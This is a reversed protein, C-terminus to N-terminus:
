RATAAIQDWGSLSPSLLNAVGHTVQLKGNRDIHAVMGYGNNYPPPFYFFLDDKTSVIRTTGASFTTQDTVRFQYGIRDVYGISTGGTNPNHLVLYRDSRVLVSYGAPLAVSHQTIVLQGPADIVGVWGAGTQKQYFLLSRGDSVIHSFSPLSGAPFNQTQIFLGNYSIYGVAAAGNLNNYFFLNNDTAVIHTWLGFSGPVFSATQVWQGDATIYGIAARGDGFYTGLGTGRYFFLFDGNSVIHTWGASFSYHGGYIRIGDPRMQVVQADGNNANYALLGNATNVVKSIGAAWYPSAPVISSFHGDRDIQGTQVYGHASDIFFLYGVSSQAFGIPALVAMLIGALLAAVLKRSWKKELRQALRQRLTLFAATVATVHTKTRM